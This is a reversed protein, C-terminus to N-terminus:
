HGREPLSFYRLKLVDYSAALLGGANSLFVLGTPLEDTLTGSAICVRNPDASTVDWVSIQGDEAASALWHLTPSYVMTNIWRSHAQINITVAGSSRQILKIQGGGYAVAVANRLPILRVGTVADTGSDPPISLTPNNDTWLVVHGGADGSAMEVCSEAGTSELDMATISRKAHAQVPTIMESSAIPQGDLTYRYCLPIGNSAGVAVMMEDKGVVRAVAACTLRTDADREPLVHAQQGNVVVVAVRSSLIVVIVSNKEADDQLATLHQVHGCSFRLPKFRPAGTLAEVTYVTSDTAYSVYAGNNHPQLNNYLLAPSHPLQVEHRPTLASNM